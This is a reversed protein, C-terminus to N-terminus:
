GNKREPLVGACNFYLYGFQTKSGNEIMKHLFGVAKEVNGEKSFGDVLVTYSVMDLNIGKEVMEGHKQLAEMLMGERYYGCIWNSYFVVDFALGEKEMRCVLDCVESVRGLMCLASVLTTYTVVNPRLAGVKVANEFFGIALEPKGIEIAGSMDRKSSFSHILSCFTFSSPLIDYNRLCDKLISLGKEPDKNNVCFGRILSDWVGFGSVKSSKEMQTKMFHEAEEFKDLKLLAWTFISHTQPNCKIEHRNIQSFLSFDIRIQPIKLSVPSIPQHIQSNSLVRKQTSNTCFFLLFSLFVHTRKAVKFKSFTTRRKLPNQSGTARVTGLYNQLPYPTGPIFISYKEFYVM